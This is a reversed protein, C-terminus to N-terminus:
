APKLVFFQYMHSFIRPREQEFLDWLRLDTMTPDEPFRQQYARQLRSDLSFGLFRLGLAQLADAIRPITFLQEQTHFLLDRCASTSYFDKSTFDWDKLTSRLRRIDRADRVQEAPLRARLQTINRRALASYLGIAMVGGPRVLDTLVRWGELPDAMHHLVGVSEVVDFQKGLEDLHLIDAQAYEINELGLRRTIRLAYALSARSLDVALVQSNRISLATTLSHFGTGCGAILIAPREPSTIQVSLCPLVSHLYRALTQPASIFPPREWRPYPNEEYQTRVRLSIEDDISTIAPISAAIRQEELADVVQRQVLKSLPAQWNTDNVSLTDALRHLARYCGFIALDFPHPTETAIRSRLAEVAQSEAETELYVYETNFCQSALACAFPLLSGKAVNGDGSGSACLLLAQRMATLLTEFDADAIIDEELLSCLLPDGLAAEAEQSQLWAFIETTGDPQKALTLLKSVPPDLRLLALGARLVDSHAVEPRALGVLIQRRLLPDPVAPRYDALLKAFSSWIRHDDPYESTAQRLCAVAKDIHGTDRFTNAINILAEPYKPQLRLAEQLVAIAEEPRASQQLVVGLNLHAHPYLGNLSIATRYNAEAQDLHGLQYLVNGLNNYAHSSDPRSECLTEFLHRAEELQGLEILLGGLNNLAEAFNPKLQLATRYAAVAHESRGMMQLIKGLNYHYKPDQAIEIAKQIADCAGAPDGQQAKILGYLHLAASDHPQQRLLAGAEALQGAQFLALARRYGETMLDTM